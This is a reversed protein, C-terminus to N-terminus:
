LPRRLERAWCDETQESLSGTTWVRTVFTLDGEWQVHGFVLYVKFSFSIKSQSIPIINYITELMKFNVYKLPFECKSNVLFVSPFTADYEYWVVCRTRFMFGNLLIFHIGEARGSIHRFGQCQALYQWTSPVTEAQKRNLSALSEYIFLWLLGLMWWATPLAGWLAEMGPSQRSSSGWLGRHCRMVLDSPLWGSSGHPRLASPCCLCKAVPATFM